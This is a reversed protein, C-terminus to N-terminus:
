VYGAAARIADNMSAKTGGNGAGNGANANPAPTFFEPNDKKFGALDFKGKGNIYDGQAVKYAAKVNRIGAAVAEAAFDAYEQAQSAKAELAALKEEASKTTDALLADQTAKWKKEADTVRRDVERQFDAATYTETKPTQDTKAGADATAEPTGQGKDQEDAMPTNGRTPSFLFVGADM